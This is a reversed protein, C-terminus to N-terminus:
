PLSCVSHHSLTWCFEPIFVMCSTVYLLNAVMHSCRDIGFSIPLWLTIIMLYHISVVSFSHFFLILLIYRELRVTFATRLVVFDSLCHLYKTLMGCVPRPQYRKVICLIINKFPNQDPDLLMCFPQDYLYGLSCLLLILVIYSCVIFCSQQMNGSYVSCKLLLHILSGSSALRM